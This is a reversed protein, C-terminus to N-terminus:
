DREEHVRIIKRERQSHWQKEKKDIVVKGIKLKDRRM